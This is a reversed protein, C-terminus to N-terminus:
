AQILLSHLRITLAVTEIETQAASNSCSVDIGPKAEATHTKLLIGLRQETVGATAAFLESFFLTNTSQKLACLLSLCLGEVYGDLHLLM